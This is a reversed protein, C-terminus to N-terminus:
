AVLGLERLLQGTVAGAEYKASAKRYGAEGLRRCLGPDGQLRALADALGEVDGEPVLLGDQEHAILRAPAGTAFAIVPKRRAWAEIITRGFTEPGGSHSVSPVVVGRCQKLLLGPDPVYQELTLEPGLELAEVLATLQGHLRKNATHGVSRVRIARGAAKLRHVALMLEAHGKFPNVTALHLFPGDDYVTTEDVPMEAMDPLVTVERGNPGIHFPFLYGVREAVVASPVFIRGRSLRSFIYDLDEWQFDRIFLASREALRPAHRAARACLLASIHTNVIVAQPERRRFDFLLSLMARRRSLRQPRASLRVIRLHPRTRAVAELQGVHEPHAAYISTEIDQPLHRAIIEVSREAGGYGSAVSVIFLRKV